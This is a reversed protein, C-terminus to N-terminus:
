RGRLAYRPDAPARGDVTLVVVGAEAATQAAVFGIADPTVAVARFMEEANGIVRPASAVRGRFVAGLWWQSYDIDSMRVLHDLFLRGEATDMPRVFLVIRHGNHWRSIDGLFIRRLDGASIDRMPNRASVVFSVNAPAPEEGNSGSAALLLIAVTLRCARMMM